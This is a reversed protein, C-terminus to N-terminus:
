CRRKVGVVIWFCDHVCVFMHALARNRVAEKEGRLITELNLSVSKPIEQHEM